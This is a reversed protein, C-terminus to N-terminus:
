ARGAELAGILGDIQAMAGTLAARLREAEGSDAPQPQHRSQSAALEIRALAADIRRLAAQPEGM